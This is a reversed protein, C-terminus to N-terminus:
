TLCLKFFDGANNIMSIVNEV